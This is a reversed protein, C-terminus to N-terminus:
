PAKEPRHALRALAVLFGVFLIVAGSLYPYSANVDFAFGGWIPGAIQGLSIFSNNLGMQTIMFPFVPMAMGFGLMVVILALALVTLQRRDTRNPGYIMKNEIEGLRM